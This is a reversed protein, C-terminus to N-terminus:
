CQDSETEPSSMLERERFFPLKREGFRSNLRDKEGNYGDARTTYSTIM